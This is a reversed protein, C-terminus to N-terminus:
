TGHWDQYKRSEWLTLSAQFRYSFLGWHHPKFEASLSPLTNGLSRDKFSHVCIAHNKNQLECYRVHLEALAELLAASDLAGFKVVSEGNHLKTFREPNSEVGMLEYVEKEWRKLRPAIAHEHLRLGVSLLRSCVETSFAVKLNLFLELFKELPKSTHVARLSVKGSQRLLLTAAEFLTQWIIFFFEVGRVLGVCTPVENPPNLGTLWWRRWAGQPGRFLSHVETAEATVKPRNKRYWNFHRIRRKRIEPEDKGTGFGDGFIMNRYGQVSKPHVTDLLGFHEILSGYRQWYSMRQILEGPPVSIREGQLLKTLRRAIKVDTEPRQFQARQVPSKIVQMSAAVEHMAKVDHLDRTLVTIGPFLHDGWRTALSMFGLISRISTQKAFPQVIFM